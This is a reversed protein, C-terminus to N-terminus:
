PIHPYEKNIVVLRAELHAISRLDEWYRQTSLQKAISFKRTCDECLGKVTGQCCGRVISFLLGSVGDYSGAKKVNVNKM